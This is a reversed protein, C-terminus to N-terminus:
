PTIRETILESGVLVDYGFLDVYEVRPLQYFHKPEISMVYIHDMVCLRGLIRVMLFPRGKVLVLKMKRSPLAVFTVSFAVPSVVDAASTDSGQPNWVKNWHLKLEVSDSIGELPEMLEEPYSWSFGYAVQKELFTLNARDDAKGNKRNTDRTVPDVDQWFGELPCKLHLTQQQPHEQPSLLGKYVVVNGNKSRLIFMCVDVEDHEFRQGRHWLKTESTSESLARLLTFFETDYEAHLSIM